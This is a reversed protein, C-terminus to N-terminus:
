LVSWNSLWSKSGCYCAGSSYVENVECVIALTSGRDDCVEELRENITFHTNNDWGDIVYM